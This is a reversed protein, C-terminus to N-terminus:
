SPQNADDFAVTCAPAVTDLSAAASTADGSSLLTVADISGAACLQANVFLAEAVDREAQATTLEDTAADLAAKATELAIGADTVQQAQVGLKDAPVGLGAVADDILTKDAGAQEQAGQELGAKDQELQANESELTANQETLEEVQAQLTAIEGTSAEETSQSDSNLSFAWIAFGIAAVGFVATLVKWVTGSNGGDQPTSSEAPPTVPVPETPDTM